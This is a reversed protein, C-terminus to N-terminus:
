ARSYQYAPPKVPNGGGTPVGKMPPQTTTTTPFIPQSQSKKYYIYLGFDILATLAPIGLGLGVGIKIRQLADGGGGGGGGNCSQSNIIAATTVFSADRTTVHGQGDTFVASSTVTLPILTPTLVYTQTRVMTQVVTSPGAHFTQVAGTYSPM